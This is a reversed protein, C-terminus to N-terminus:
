AFTVDGDATGLEGGLRDSGPQHVLELQEDRGDHDSPALLGERVISVQLEFQQVFATEAAAHDVEM